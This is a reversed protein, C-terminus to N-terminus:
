IIWDFFLVIGQILRWGLYLGALGITLMFGIPWRDEDDTRDAPPMGATEESM